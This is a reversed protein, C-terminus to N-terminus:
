GDAGAVAGAPGAWPQLIGAPDFAACLQRTLQELRPSSPAPRALDRFPSPTAGATRWARLVGDAAHAALRWSNGAAAADALAAPVDSPRVTLSHREAAGAEHAALRDLLDSPAEALRTGFIAGLDAASEDVATTGGLVRVAVVWDGPHGPDAGPSLIELADPSLAERVRLAAEGAARAGATGPGGAILFTRDIQPRGRLRLFAHTLVGLRGCSGVLLKAVDYGAVNKVVRGGFRLRRGDGTVVEVGLVMDRPTGHRARLPGAAGTAICAGITADTHGPPDLPLWQGAGALHQALAVLSLGPRCGVVLDAPEHETIAVLRAASIVIPARAHDATRDLPAPLGVPVAGHLSTGAGAIRVPWGEASCVGLVEAIADPEVPALVAAATAAAEIRNRVPPPVAADEGIRDLLETAFARAERTPKVATASAAARPAHGPGGM